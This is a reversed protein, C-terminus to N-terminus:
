EPRDDEIYIIDKECPYLFANNKKVCCPYKGLKFEPLNYFFCKKCNYSIHKRILIKNKYKYTKKDEEKM